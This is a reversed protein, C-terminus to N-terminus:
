LTEYFKNQQEQKEIKKHHYLCYDEEGPLNVVTKHGVIVEHVPNIWKIEPKNKYIRSQYDNPWNIWGRDNIRWGWKKIHEETIGEVKNIRPVRFLDVDSNAELLEHINEILFGHPYEDVDISFIYSNKCLKNLYNKHNGFHKNLKHYHVSLNNNPEKAYEDIVIMLETPVPNTDDILIVIEDQPKKFKEIISLLRDMEVHENYATIGWSIKM